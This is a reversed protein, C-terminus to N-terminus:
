EWRGSTAKIEHMKALKKQRIQEIQCARAHKASASRRRAAADRENSLAAVLDWADNREDDLYRAEDEADARLLIERWWAACAVLAVLGSGIMVLASM